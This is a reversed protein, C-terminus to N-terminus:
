IVKQQKLYNKLVSLNYEYHEDLHYSNGIAQHYLNNLFNDSQYQIFPEFDRWNSGLIYKVTRTNLLFGNTSRIIKSIIPLGVTPNASVFAYNLENEINPNIDKNNLEAYYLFLYDCELNYDQIMREIVKEHSGTIRIDDLFLCYKGKVFEKDIHFTDRGILNMREEASLAGYDERYSVSRTIKTEQVVPLEKEALWSNLTRVFYDKMAFTATPIFQYPSSIVVIQPFRDPEIGRYFKWMSQERYLIYNIFAQALEEGYKRAISKCGFKFKSYEEKNFPLNDRDTISHVSINHSM